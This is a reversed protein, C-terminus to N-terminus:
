NRGWVKIFSGAGWQDSAYQDIIDVRTIQNSTNAWKGVSETRSPATGAGATNGTISNAIVLKENQM